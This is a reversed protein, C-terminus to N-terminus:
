NDIKLVKLNTLCSMGKPLSFSKRCKSIELKELATLNELWKPLAAFNLCREVRLYQLTASSGELWRPLTVLEPLGALVLMQLNGLCHVDKSELEPLGGIVLSRLMRLGEIDQWELLTLEKCDIILLNELATLHKMASPFFTLRPCSIIALTRLSTLYQLGESLSVLNNCSHICLSRLSSLCGIAKDPFCAQKTTIFLHRLSILNGIDKPLGELQPCHSVRLTQLSLLKNISDPLEKISGNSSVDLYRLYKLEGVSSSLEDFCSDSIDLVRLQMFRAICDEVFMTSMPGVGNISFSITRLAQNSVLSTPLEKGSLDYDSFAVHRVEDSINQIHSNVTCFEVGAASLALDHVLDHMTCISTYVSRYEEVDQFFSRSLLERYHQIAVHELDESENSKSILGEAVWLQILKDIEIVCGKPFISCYALCVKLNSSLQKYSVRLASSIEDNQNSNWGSHNNVIEWEWRETKKRLSSGVIMLLLPNGECKHVLMLAIDVLEPYLVEQDHEFAKNLFLTLSDQRLLGKLCYAPVTGMISAVEKKRTTVLIKSGCAGVMLLKKLEDWKLPDENWVDDLVILYNKGYLTEHVLNKLEIMDLKECLLDERVSNVIQELVEEVKFVRSVHVWLLLQFHSVIRPDNYVFKALTTKGIGGVGVIPYVFLTAENLLEEIVTHRDTDRGVVGSYHVSVRTRTSDFGSQLIIYCNTHDLEVLEIKEEFDGIKDLIKILKRIELCMRNRYAFPNLRGSFILGRVKSSTSSPLLQNKLSWIEYKDIVREADYCALKLMEAVEHSLTVDRETKEVFLELKILDSHMNMARAINVVSKVKVLLMDLLVKADKTISLFTSSEQVVDM